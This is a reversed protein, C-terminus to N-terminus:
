TISNKNILYQNKIMLLTFILFHDSSYDGTFIQFTLYGFIAAIIVSSKGYKVSLRYYIFFLGLTLAFFGIIGFEIIGVFVISEFGYLDPHMGNHSLAYMNCWNHGLGFLFSRVDGSIIQFSSYLQGIRLYFSSGVVTNESEQWFFVISNLYDRYEEILSTCVLGIFSFTLIIKLFQKRFYKNTSPLLFYLIIGGVLGIIASRCGTIFINLVILLLLIVSSYHRGGRINISYLYLFFSMLLEGAYVLPHSTFGQIRGTLGGRSEQSFHSLMEDEVGTYEFISSLLPNSQTIYCFLGYITLFYVFPTVIHVVKWFDNKNELVLCGYLALCFWAFVRRFGIMMGESFLTDNLVAWIVLSFLYLSFIIICRKGLVGTRNRLLSLVIYLLCAYNFFTIYKIGLLHISRNFFLSILYTALLALSLKGTERLSVLFYILFFFFLLIGTM